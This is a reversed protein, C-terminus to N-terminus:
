VTVAVDESDRYGLRCARFWRTQGDAPLPGTYLHWTRGDPEPVGIIDVMMSTRPPQIKPAAPPDGTWAIVANATLRTATIQGNEVTVQPPDTVPQKGGPRWREVLEEEPLLGLDGYTQQWHDLVERLRTLDTGYESDSALNHIEHPDTHLDYLEETPKTTALFLRQEPTLLNPVEGKGLMTAEEFRLRRLERWTSTSEVYDLHQVYPRDPHYNRIYRFRTDRVTRMTEETEDMRDRHGFVYERPTPSFRGQADLFSQGHMQKPVPLGAAALM